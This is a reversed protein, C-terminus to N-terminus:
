NWSRDSIMGIGRWWPLENHGTLAITRAKALPGGVLAAIFDGAKRIGPAWPGM